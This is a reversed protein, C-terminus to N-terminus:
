SIKQFINKVLEYWRNIIKIFGIFYGGNLKIFFRKFLKLPITQIQNAFNIKSFDAYSSYFVDEYDKDANTGSENFGINEVLTKPPYICEKKNIYNTAYWYIFWTDIVKYRNLLLQEIYTFHFSVAFKIPNSLFLKKLLYSCNLNLKRWKPKWTAWGWCSFMTSKYIYNDNLKIPYQYGSIAAIDFSNYRNLSLNMFELFNESVVIDDEIVICTEHNEFVYNLGEIISKKLGKNENSQIINIKKFNENFLSLHKLIENQAVVDKKSKPGDLFFYLISSISEKNNSLSLFVQYLSAARNFGFVAIPSNKFSQRM